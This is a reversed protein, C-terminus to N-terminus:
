KQPPPEAKPTHIGNEERARDALRAYREKLRLLDEETLDELNIFANQAGRVARLLEDLKLQFATSERNQTNQILFVMLMSVINTFTNIILQWADSWGFLPGTLLWVVTIASIALFAGSSGTARASRQALTAFWNKNQSTGNM